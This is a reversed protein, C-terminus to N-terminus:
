YLNREIVKSFISYYPVYLDWYSNLAWFLKVLGYIAIFSTLLFKNIFHRTQYLLLPILIIELMTFILSGRVSIVSIPYFCFFLVTGFIYLNFLGNFHPVREQISKRFYLLFPIILIRKSFSFLRVLTPNVNDNLIDNDEIYVNIRYGLKSNNGLLLAIQKLPILILDFAGVLMSFLLIIVITQNSYNNNYIWYSPIFLIVSSHITAALSIVMFFKCFNRNEIFRISFLMISVAIAQRTLFIFGLFFCYFLFISFLPFSSYKKIFQFTFGLCIVSCVFLFFTYNDYIRKVIYNMMLFGKEPSYKGHYVLFSRLSDNDEFLRFYPDWDTGTNWRLSGLTVLIIFSFIFLTYNLNNIKIFYIEYFSFLLLLLFLSIYISM